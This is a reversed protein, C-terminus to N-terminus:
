SGWGSNDKQGIIEVNEAIDPPDITKCVEVNNSKKPINMQAFQIQQLVMGRFIQRQFLEMQKSYRTKELMRYCWPLHFCM